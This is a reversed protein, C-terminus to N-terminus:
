RSVEWGRSIYAIVDALHAVLQRQLHLHRVLEARTGPMQYLAGHQSVYLKPERTRHWEETYVRYTM